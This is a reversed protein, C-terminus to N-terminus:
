CGTTTDFNWSFARPRRPYELRRSERDVIARRWEMRAEKMSLTLPRGPLPRRVDVSLGLLHSLPYLSSEM